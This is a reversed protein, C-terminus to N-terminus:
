KTKSRTKYTNKSKFSNKFSSIIGGLVTSGFLIKEIDIATIKNKILNSIDQTEQDVFSTIKTIDDLVVITTKKILVVISILYVTLLLLILFFLGFVSLGFIQLYQIITQTEM